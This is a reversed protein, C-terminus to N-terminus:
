LPYGPFSCSCLGFAYIPFSLKSKIWRSISALDRIHEITSDTRRLPQRALKDLFSALDIYTYEETAIYKIGCFPCKMTLGESCFQSYPQQLLGFCKVCWSRAINLDLLGEIDFGAM